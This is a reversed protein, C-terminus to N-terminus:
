MADVANCGVIRPRVIAPNVADTTSVEAPSCAAPDTPKRVYTLLLAVLVGITCLM